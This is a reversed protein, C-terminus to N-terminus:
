QDSEKSGFHSRGTKPTSWRGSYKPLKIVKIEWTIEFKWFCRVNVTAVSDEGLDMVANSSTVSHGENLKSPIGSGFVLMSPGSLFQINAEGDV